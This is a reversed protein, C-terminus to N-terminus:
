QQGGNLRDCEQQAQQETRCILALTPVSELGPTPYVVFFEGRRHLVTHKQSISIEAHNM